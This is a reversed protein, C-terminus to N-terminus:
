EDEEGIILYFLAKKHKNKEQLPKFVVKNKGNNLYKTIDTELLKKKFAETTVRFYYDNIFFEFEDIKDKNEIILTCKKNKNTDSLKMLENKLPSKSPNLAQPTKNKQKTFYFEVGYDLEVNNYQVTKPITGLNIGKYYHKLIEDYSVGYSSLYGAGYQSMGVGHGFGAGYFDFTDPLNKHKKILGGISPLLKVKEEKEESQFIAEKKDEKKDKKIEEKNEKNTKKAEVFFNASPLYSGNQKFIRRIPLEKKVTYDGSESKIELELVKYSAGRKLVNIEKLGEIKNGISYPPTVNGSKSQEYLTKSLIDELEERKFSKQWRYKPSKMDFSPPNSQFYKKIDDESKLGELDPNDCVSRLYPIDSIFNGFTEFYNGSIGSSTSSYLALIIQNNYLAYIGLTEDVAKDSIQTRSNEGYYVQCATSDCVDYNTYYTNPRNAYNRAAVAQAKLAELGFSIPMENPVVGKLYSQMDLVNIINYKDPKVGRLEIMGSYYASDAKRSIEKIGIKDTGTLVIPGKSNDIIKEDSSLVTFNGDKIKIQIPVFPSVPINNGEEMNVINMESPSIFTMNNHEYGSFSSNSIGVRITTKEEAKAIPIFIFLYLLLLSWFLKKM